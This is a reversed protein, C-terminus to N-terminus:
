RRNGFKDVYQNGTFGRSKASESCKRRFEESMQKGKNTPGHTKTYQVIAYPDAHHRAHESRSLCMLNTYHNNHPDEDIHHVVCGEFWDPCHFRAVLSHVGVIHEKRDDDVVRCQLYKNSKFQKLQKHTQRNIITGDCQVDYNTLKYM